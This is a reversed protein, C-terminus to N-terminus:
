NRSWFGYNFLKDFNHCDEEGCNKLVKLGYKDKFWRLLKRDNEQPDSSDFFHNVISNLNEFGGAILQRAVFICYLGCLKSKGSQVQFPCFSTDIVVKASIDLLYNKLDTSYFDPSKAFTDFWCIRKNLLDFFYLIWHSGLRNSKQVNHICFNVSNVDFNELAVNLFEDLAYVGQFFDSIEPDKLCLYNLQGANM